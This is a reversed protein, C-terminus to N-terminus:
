RHLLPESARDTPVRTVGRRGVQAYEYDALIDAGFAFASPLLLSAALKETTKEFRDTGFFIYKPLVAAFFAIPLVVAALKANSFFVSCCLAFSICGMCFVAVFSFLLWLPTHVCFAKVVLSCILADLVFQLVATM